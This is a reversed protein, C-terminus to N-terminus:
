NTMALSEEHVYKFTFIIFLMKGCIFDLRGYPLCLADANRTERGNIDRHTQYYNDFIEPLDGIQSKYM